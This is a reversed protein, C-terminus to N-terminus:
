KGWEGNRKYLSLHRPRPCYEFKRGLEEFAKFLKTRGANTSLEIRGERGPETWAHKEANYGRLTRYSMSRHGDYWNMCIRLDAEQDELFLSFTRGSFISLCSGHQSDLLQVVPHFSTIQQIFTLTQQITKDRLLTPM